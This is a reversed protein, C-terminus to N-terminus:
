ERNGIVFDHNGNKSISVEKEEVKKILDGTTIRDHISISPKVSVSTNTPNFVTFHFASSSSAYITPGAGSQYKKGDVEIYVQKVELLKVGGIVEKIFANNQYYVLGNKERVAVNIGLNKGGINQPLVYSFPIKTTSIGKVLYPGFVKRNYINQPIASFTNTTTSYKGALSIDFYVDLMDKQQKNSVYITGKVTDGANYTDKDIRVEGIYLPSTMVTSETTTGNNNSGYAEPKIGPPTGQPMPLTSIDIVPFSTQTSDNQASSISPLILILFCVVVAFVKKFM